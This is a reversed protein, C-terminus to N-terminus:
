NPNPPLDRHMLLLRATFGNEECFNKAARHGPLVRIEASVARQRRAWDLVAEILTEGVGVARAEPDVYIDSVVAHVGGAQELRPVLRVVAYGVPVDDILGLFAAATDSHLDAKFSEAVPEPRADLAAWAGKIGTMEAAGAEYLAVLVAIDGEGARRATENM